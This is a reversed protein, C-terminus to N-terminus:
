IIAFINSIGVMRRRVAMVFEGAVHVYLRLWQEEGKRNKKM